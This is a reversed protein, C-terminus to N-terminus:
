APLKASYIEHDLSYALADSFHNDKDPLESLLEGDKTRKYEYASLERVAAPTRRPDAIITRHQLWRIRYEVCGPFKRCATAKIGEFQLDAISKPEAADCIVLQRRNAVEGYLPSYSRNQITPVAKDYGKAKIKGAAAKNSIGRGTIEDLLYITEHKRDYSVRLFALPDQAFGFDLGQFIYEMEGIEADTIERIVLNEFVAGGAGTAEGMYEHQYAAPNIQKLREAEYIFSEGLWEPPLQTYNTHLTIARADPEQIFLNAWNSRSIPPNFSRFVIFGDGGRQVSQMVNRLFNPGPLESLEEIWIFKFFGHAPKISKLKSPDDLGRFIIQAGTPLYTYGMPSLRGRWLSNVGLADIAWAIQSYVSERLIIANSEGTQDRMMSNVIELAVFSSKGSGRGGPLNYVTHATAEIDRHLDFYCPAIHQYIDVNQVLERAARQQKRAATTRRVRSRLADYYM